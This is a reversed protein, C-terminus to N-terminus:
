RTKNWRNQREWKGVPRGWSELGARQRERRKEEGSLMAEDLMETPIVGERSARM